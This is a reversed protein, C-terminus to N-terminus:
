PRNVTVATVDNYVSQYVGNAPVASTANSVAFTTSTRGNAVGTRTVQCTGAVGTTCTTGGSGGSGFGSGSTWTGTVTAGSVPNHNGDHVTATVTANWPSTANGQRVSTGSLAGIHMGNVRDTDTASNDSPNTDTYSAPLAVNATNVLSAVTTNPTVSGSTTTFTVTSGVPM